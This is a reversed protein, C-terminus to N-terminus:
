EAYSYCGLKIKHIQKITQQAHLFDSFFLSRCGKTGNPIIELGAWWGGVVNKKNTCHAEGGPGALNRM